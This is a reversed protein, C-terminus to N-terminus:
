LYIQPKFCKPVMCLSCFALKLIFLYEVIAIHHAGTKGNRVCIDRKNTNLNEFM